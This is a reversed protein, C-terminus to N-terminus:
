VRVLLGKATKGRVASVAECYVQVQRRYADLETALERDTKFDLVTLGDGDDFALDITGEVLTGDPANWTVPMERYCRGTALAARARDLLPHSLVRLVADAANQQEDRPCGLIRAQTDTVRAVTEANADLPVTALAAHVLTGFRPGFPRGTASGVSVVNIASLSAADVGQEGARLDDHAWATATGV